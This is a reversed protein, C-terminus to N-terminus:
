RRVWRRGAITLGIAALLALPAAWSHPALMAVTYAGAGFFAAQGFSPIDAVGFLLNVSTAFLVAIIATTWFFLRGTGLVEPLLVVVLVLLALGALNATRRRM